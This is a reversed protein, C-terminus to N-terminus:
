RARVPAALIQEPSPPSQQKQRDRVCCWWAVIGAVVLAWFLVMGAGMGAYGWWGMNHDFWVRHDSWPDAELGAMTTTVAPDGWLRCARKSDSQM